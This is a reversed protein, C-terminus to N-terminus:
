QPTIFDGTDPMTTTQQGNRDYPLYRQQVAHAQTAYASTMVQWHVHPNTTHGSNGCRGLETGVGVVQGPHVRITSPILHAMLSFEGNQHDIVVYNGHQDYGNVVGPTNDPIGDVAIVVVGQADALIPQGYAPYDTNKKGSGNAIKGDVTPFVVDIAFGQDRPNGYHTRQILWRGNFPLRYGPIIGPPGLQTVTPVGPPFAPEPRACAVVFLPAILALAFRARLM